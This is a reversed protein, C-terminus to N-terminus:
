LIKVDIVASEKNINDEFYLTRDDFEKRAVRLAASGLGFVCWFIYYASSDSWIYNVAGYSILCLTAVNVAPSLSSIQSKRIYPYYTVRHRYRVIILVIFLLLAFIGAELAIEILLNSSDRAGIVGYRSMESIFSDAGMGIGFFINDLFALISAGWVTVMEGVGTSTPAALALIIVLVYPIALMVWGKVASVIRPLKKLSYAVVGLLMIVVAFPQSTLVLAGMNLTMIAINIIKAGGRSQRVLAFSFCIAVLLYVAYVDPSPLFASIGRSLVAEAEGNVLSSILTIYAAFISPVSSIVVAGIMCDSLRRNTILNSALFYGCTMLLMVLSSVFSEVGKIFIGTVLMSLTLALIIVDYQELFFVRKGALLKRVFSIATLLVLAPLIIEGKPIVSIYPLVFFTSLFAFEPSGFALVVFVVALFLVLILWAPMFFGLLALLVGLITMALTSIPKKTDDRPVRNICLFEFLIKDTPKFDQLIFVFPKDTLLLPISLLALVVGIIFSITTMEGTASGYDALFSLIITIIGFSLSMAGYSKTSVYTIKESLASLLKSIGRRSFYLMAPTINGTLNRSFFKKGKEVGTSSSPTEYGDIFDSFVSRAM